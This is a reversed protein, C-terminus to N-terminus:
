FSTEPEYIGKRIQYNSKREEIEKKTINALKFADIVFFPINLIISTPRIPSLDGSGYHVNEINKAFSLRHARNRYEDAIVFEKAKDLDDFEFFGFNYLEDNVLIVKCGLIEYNNKQPDNLVKWNHVDYLKRLNRDESFFDNFFRSGLFILDPFSDYRLVYDDFSQRVYKFHMYNMM